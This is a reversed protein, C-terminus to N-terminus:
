REAALREADGLLREREAPSDYGYYGRIGLKADVLVLRSGHTIGLHEVGPTARGEVALKFAGEALRHIQAPDGTLFFWNELDADYREAYAGLVQPTDYDSDVSFSAFRLELARHRAESQLERVGRTISPCVSPCRTFIFSAVWASGTLTRETVPRNAQDRLEFAEVGGLVPLPEASNERQCGFCLSLLLGAYAARRRDM